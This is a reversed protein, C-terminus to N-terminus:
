KNLEIEELPFEIKKNQYNSSKEIRPKIEVDEGILNIITSPTGKKEGEYFVYDVNNRIDRELDDLSTM